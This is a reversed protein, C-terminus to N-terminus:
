SLTSHTCARDKPIEKYAEGSILRNGKSYDVEDRVVPDLIAPLDDSDMQGDGAMVVGVDTGNDRAWGYGTAIAGGVGQNVEHTILVVKGNKKQYERVIQNTSDTSKDDVIVINDVFDPMTEIVKGIQSEEDYAPVVVTIKNGKYM